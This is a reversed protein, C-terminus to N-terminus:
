KRIFLDARRERGDGGHVEGRAGGGGRGAFVDTFPLVDLVLGWPGAASGFANLGLQQVLPRGSLTGTVTCSQEAVKASACSNSRLQCCLGGTLGGVIGYYVVLVMSVVGSVWLMETIVVPSMVVAVVVM